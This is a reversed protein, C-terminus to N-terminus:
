PRICCGLFLPPVGWAREVAEGRDRREPCPFHVHAGLEQAELPTLSSAREPEPPGRCMPCIPTNTAEALPCIGLRAPGPSSTTVPLAPQGQLEVQVTERESPCSDPAQNCLTMAVGDDQRQPM